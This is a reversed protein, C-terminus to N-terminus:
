GNLPKKRDNPRGGIGEQLHKILQFKAQETMGAVGSANIIDYFPEPENVLFSEIGENLENNFAGVIADAENQTAMEIEVLFKKLDSLGKRLDNARLNGESLVALSQAHIEIIKM